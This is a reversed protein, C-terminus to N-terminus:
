KYEFFHFNSSVNLSCSLLNGVIWTKFIQWDVLIQSKYPVFDTLCSDILLCLKENGFKEIFEDAGMLIILGSYKTVNFISSLTMVPKDALRKLIYKELEM